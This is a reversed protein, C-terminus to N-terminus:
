EESWMLDFDFTPTGGIASGGFNIAIWDNVGNLVIAKDNQWAYQFALRDLNVASSPCTVRGAHIDAVVTGLGTPNASYLSVGATPAPDSTDHKGVTQAAFTGGTNATSRRTIKVPATSNSGSTACNIVISRLRILKSASGQILIVDTPSAATAVNLLGLSYTCREPECDSQDIDVTPNTGPFIRLVRKGVNIFPTALSM